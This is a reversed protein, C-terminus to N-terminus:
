RAPPPAGDGDIFTRYWLELNLLGWLSRSFAGEHAMLREVEPVDFLGRERCRQSLLVDCFFDRADGRAWLHLPVPFGMKDKRAVIEDPVLGRIARKLIYKLEAGKFKMAPPMSAVLDAIRHDLLPVRSELSSAMTVRDEVHLLAPLNTVMDYRTMKNFYSKTDTHNFVERFREFLVAPDYEARFGPSLLSLAGGSRDVLRFYRRDMEEFLGTRWFSQMMPAYQRLAPLNPLISAFSVIHEGEDASEFVAGKIAQEFYAVLYRVYGGFIEDGGQGGLVVKVKRSAARSVVFQPFLGPGAVPEDMHWAITPLMDVFQRETPTIVNSRAGCADAMLRAYHSEDFEPGEDFRGTFTEIGGPALRSALATVLSSDTGGSLYAGVPVDARMQLRVADELLWRIKETFYHESHDRDLRFDPEWYRHARRAGTALDWVQYEGPLVRTVGRFLTREGQVHQFTLYERVGDGDAEARLARDTFLGKIESAFLVRAADVHLYLPKIGFHDRAMLVRRRLRDYLAFAFMGNLRAVCGDGWEEYARVIVETDSATRFAHGRAALEDRLEVYNYVEGNFVIVSRETVLPQQGTALDIIALRQHAFAVPGEAFHGDGDPGRHRIAAAMRLVPELAATAGDLRVIGAIGCM